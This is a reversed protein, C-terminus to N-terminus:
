KKGCIKLKCFTKLLFLTTELNQKLTFRTNHNMIPILLCIQQHRYITRETPKPPPCPFDKRLQFLKTLEQHQNRMLRHFQNFMVQCHPLM